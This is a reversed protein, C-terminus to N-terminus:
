RNGGALALLILYIGLEQVQQAAGLVDGTFGGIHQQMVYRLLYRVLLVGLALILISSVPLTLAAIGGTALVFLLHKLSVPKALPDSKNKKVTGLGSVYPLDQVHTLAMARSLPYALALALYLMEAQALSVLLTFKLTLVLVLSCAGYTGIRSDKMIDIKREITLGGWFGDCTDALGDEHLAGTLLVSAIMLLVIAVTNGWIPTALYFLGMLLLALLWGILAFYRTCSHMFEPQYQVSKGMPIRTFFGLALRFYNVEARWISRCETSESM